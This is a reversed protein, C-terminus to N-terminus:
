RGFRWLFVKRYASGLDCRLPWSGIEGVMLIPRVIGRNAGDWGLMAMERAGEFERAEDVV